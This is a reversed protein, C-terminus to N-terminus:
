IFLDASVSFMQALDKARAKSIGRKGRLIESVLGKSGFVPLLDRSAMKRSRMLERLVDAPSARGTRYASREFESILTSLLEVFRREDASLSGEGHSLIESLVNLARENEAETKVVQPQYQKLLDRYSREAVAPMNGGEEIM